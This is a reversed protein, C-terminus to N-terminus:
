LVRCLLDNMIAYNCKFLVNVKGFFLNIYNSISVFLDILPEMSINLKPKGKCEFGGKNNTTHNGYVPKSYMGKLSQDM